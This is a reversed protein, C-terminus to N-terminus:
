PDSKYVGSKKREKGFSKKMKEKDRKEEEM